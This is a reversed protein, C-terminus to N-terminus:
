GAAAQDTAYRILEQSTIGAPRQDDIKLFATLEDKFKSSVDRLTVYGRAEFTQKLGEPIAVASALHQESDGRVAVVILLWQNPNRPDQTMAKEYQVEKQHVHKM